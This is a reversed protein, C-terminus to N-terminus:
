TLDGNFCNADPLSFTNKITMINYIIFYRSMFLSMKLISFYMGSNNTVIRNCKVAVAWSDTEIVPLKSPHAGCIRVNPHLTLPAVPSTDYEHVDPLPSTDTSASGVNEYRVAPRYVIETVTVFPPCVAVSLWSIMTNLPGVADNLSLVM